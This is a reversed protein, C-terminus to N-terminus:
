RVQSVTGGGIIPYAHTNLATRNPLEGPGDVDAKIAIRKFATHGAVFDLQEVNGIPLFGVAGKTQAVFPVIFSTLPLRVADPSLDARLNNKVIEILNSNRKHVTVVGVPLDPGGVESWNTYEGSFIKRVQELTLETVPNSPHVLVAVMDCAEPKREVHWPSQGNPVTEIKHKRVAALLQEQRSVVTTDNSETGQAAPSNWEPAYDVVKGPVAAQDTSGGVRGARESNRIIEDVIERRVQAYIEKKMEQVLAKTIKQVPAHEEGLATGTGERMPQDAVRGAPSTPAIQPAVAHKRTAQELKEATASAGSAALYKVVSVLSETYAPLSGVVFVVVMATVAALGVGLPARHTSNRMLRALLVGSLYVLAGMMGGVLDPLLDGFDASRGPVYMQHVEDSVGFAVSVAATLVITAIAGIGMGAFLYRAVCLGLIFYLGLHGLIELQVLGAPGPPITPVSGYQSVLGIVSGSLIMPIWLRLTNM